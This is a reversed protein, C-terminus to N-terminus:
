ELKDYCRAVGLCDTNRESLARARLGRMRRVTRRGPARPELVLRCSGRLQWRLM